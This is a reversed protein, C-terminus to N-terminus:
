GDSPEKIRTKRESIVLAESAWALRAAVEADTMKAYPKEREMSGYNIRHSKGRTGKRAM